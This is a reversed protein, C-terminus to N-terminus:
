RFRYHEGALWMPEIKEEGYQHYHNINYTDVLKYFQSRFKANKFRDDHYYRSGYECLKGNEDKPTVYVCGKYTKNDRYYGDGVSCFQIRIRRGSNNKLIKRLIKVVM